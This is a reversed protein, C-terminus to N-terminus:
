LLKGNWILETRKFQRNMLFGSIFIYFVTKLM